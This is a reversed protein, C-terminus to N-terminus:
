IGRGKLLRDLYDHTQENITVRGDLNYETSEIAYMDNPSILRQGQGVSEKIGLWDGPYVHVETTGTVGDVIIGRGTDALCTPTPPRELPRLIATRDHFVGFLWGYGSDGPLGSDVTSLLAVWEEAQQRAPKQDFLESRTLGTTQLGWPKMIKYPSFFPQILLSIDLYEPIYNNESFFQLEEQTWGVYRKDLLQYYGACEITITVVRQKESEYIPSLDIQRPLNSMQRIALELAKAAEGDSMEGGSLVAELLGWESQSVEDEAWVTRKSSPGEGEVGTVIRSYAIQIRNAMDLVPGVVTNARGGTYSIKNVFGEWVTEGSSRTIWVDGGLMSLYRPANSETDLVTASANMFGGVKNTSFSLSGVNLTERTSSLEENNGTFVSTFPSLARQVYTSARERDGSTWDPNGDMGYRLRSSGVHIAFRKM